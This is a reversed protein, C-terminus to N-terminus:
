PGSTSHNELSVEEIKQNLTQIICALRMMPEGM